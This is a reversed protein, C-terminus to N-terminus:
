ASVLERRIAADISETSGDFFTDGDWHPWTEVIGHGTVLYRPRQTPDHLPYGLNPGVRRAAVFSTPAGYTTEAGGGKGSYGPILSTGGNPSIQMTQNISVVDHAQLQERNNTIRAPLMMVNPNDDCWEYLEPTGFGITGVIQTAPALDMVWTSVLEGWVERIRPAVAAVISEALGGVGLQATFRDPLHKVIYNAIAQDTPSSGRRPVTYLPEDTRTVGIVHTNNIWNCQLRPMNSNEVVHVPVHQKIIDGTYDNNMGLSRMGYADPGTTQAVVLDPQARMFHWAMDSFQCDYPYVNLMSREAHSYFTSIIKINDPTNPYARPMHMTYINIDMGSDLITDMVPTPFGVAPPMVVNLPRGKHVTKLSDIITM